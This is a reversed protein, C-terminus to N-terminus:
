ENSQRSMGIAAPTLLSGCGTAGFTGGGLGGSPLYFCASGPKNMRGQLPPQGSARVVRRGAAVPRNDRLFRAVNM